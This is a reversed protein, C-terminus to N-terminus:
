LGPSHSLAEGFAALIQEIAQSFPGKNELIVDASGEYLPLRKEYVSDLSDLKGQLVPRGAASKLSHKIEALPRKLFVIRGSEKMLRVNEEVTVIGGGTAVIAGSAEAAIRRLCATEIRRFGSEGEEEFIRPISKEQSQEIYEDVDIFERGLRWALEKGITSKGCGMIGTLYVNNM